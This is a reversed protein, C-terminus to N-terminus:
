NINNTEFLWRMNKDNYSQKYKIFRKDRQLSIILKDVEVSLSNEKNKLLNIKMKKLRALLSDKNSELVLNIDAQLLSKNKTNKNDIRQTEIKDNHAKISTGVADIVNTLKNFNIKNNQVANLMSNGRNGVSPATIEGRPIKIAM